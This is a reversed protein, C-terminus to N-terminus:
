APRRSMAALLTEQITKKTGLREVVDMEITDRALIRYIFCSRKHGAQHQRTPGLREAIQLDLELDWGSSYFVLTRGGDALNLGHGASKPHALMMQIKGANWRDLTSQKADLAIAKPYAKQLRALDSRFQYAVLLPEDGMEQVISDLAYLKERHVEHWLKSKPHDDSDAQVDLYVAGSSFQLLKQSRAAAGFAEVTAHQELEAFYEREMAQYQTRAKLPLDIMVNRLIPKDLDPFVDETRISICLDKIAAHIEREAHPLADITYGDYSRSFWRMKFAEYSRGLRVGKDLFWTQGYLKQLGNPAPTGSLEIFRKVKVHAVQAMARAQATGQKLRFGSLRSSEDFVITRYPWRDGWYEVLWVLNEFNISYANAPFKLTIRREAETGVVALVHYSRLHKWKRCESPWVSKAVRLPAVILVPSDDVALALIDLATLTSVTKGLGMAAWVACRPTDLIHKVIQDQYSWPVYERRAAGNV